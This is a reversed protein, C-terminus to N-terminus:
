ISLNFQPIFLLCFFKSFVNSRTACMASRGATSLASYLAMPLLVDDDADEDGLYLRLQREVVALPRM